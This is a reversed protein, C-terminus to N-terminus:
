TTSSEEILRAAVTMEKEFTMAKAVAQGAAAIQRARSPNSRVWDYQEFLDSLDAKVPVFHEWPQLRDYYWQRFGGASDVKLVCCGLKLRTLFNDWTNSAGDIDLAFRHHAWSMRDRADGILGAKRFFPELHSEPHEGTYVFKADVGTDRCMMVLRCRPMIGSTSTMAPDWSIVGQGNPGGRWVLAEDRDAWDPAKDAVWDARRIGDRLMFYPDLIPIVDPSPSSPSFRYNGPRHGDTLTVVMQQAEKAADFQAVYAATRRHVSDHCVAAGMEGPLEAEIRDGIRSLRLDRRALGGDQALRMSVMTSWDFSENLCALTGHQWVTVWNETDAPPATKGLMATQVSRGIQGLAGVMGIGRM